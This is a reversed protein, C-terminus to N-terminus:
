YEPEWDVVIRGLALDVSRLIPAVFPVLRDEGGKGGVARVRIVPHAGFDEVAVVNGLAHGSESVVGLGVLDGLYVENKGPRPLASRPVAVEGGKLVAAAEPTGFGAISAVVAHGHVRAEDVARPRWTGGAEKLWWTRQAVLGDPRDGYPTVKVWGRVGWPGVM